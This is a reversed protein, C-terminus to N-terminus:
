IPETLQEGNQEKAMLGLFSFGSFSVNNDILFDELNPPLYASYVYVM